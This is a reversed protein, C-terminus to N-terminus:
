GKARRYAACLDAVTRVGSVATTAFPDVGLELELTAVLQAVDLSEFGLDTTFVHEPRVADLDPRHIKAIALVAAYIKDDM